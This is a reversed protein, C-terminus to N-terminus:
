YKLRSEKEIFQLVEELSLSEIMGEEIHDRFMRNELKKFLYENLLEEFLQRHELPSSDYNLIITFSDGCDIVRMYVYYSRCYLIKKNSIKISDEDLEYVRFRSTDIKRMLRLINSHNLKAENVEDLRKRACNSVCEIPHNVLENLYKYQNVISLLADSNMSNEVIRKHEYGLDALFLIDEYSLTSFMDDIHYVEYLITNIEERTLEEKVYAREIEYALSVCNKDITTLGENALIRKNIESNSTLQQSTIEKM